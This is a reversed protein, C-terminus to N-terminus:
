AEIDQFSDGFGFLNIESKKYTDLYANFSVAMSSKETGSFSISEPQVAARYLTLNRSNDAGSNVPKLLLERAVSFLNKGVSSEGMGIVKTGGGPTYSDGVVNEM